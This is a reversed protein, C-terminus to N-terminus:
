GASGLSFQAEFHKQLQDSTEFPTRNIDITQLFMPLELGSKYYVTIKKGLAAAFGAECLAGTAFKAPYVLVFHNSRRLIDIGDRVRAAKSVLTDEVHHGGYHVSIHKAKMRDVVDDIVRSINQRYGGLDQLNAVIGHFISNDKAGWAANAMPASIFWDVVNQVSARNNLANTISTGIAGYDPADKLSCATANKIVRLFSEAFKPHDIQLANIAAFPGLDSIPIGPCLIPVIKQDARFWSAGFEFTIWPRAISHPSLLCVIVNASNITTRLKAFWEDGVNKEPAWDPTTIGEFEERMIQMLASAVAADGESYSVFVSVM